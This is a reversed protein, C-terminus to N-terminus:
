KLVIERTYLLHDAYGTSIQFAGPESVLKNENNWFRLMPETVTFSIVKREGPGFDVKQFDILQQIPRANSAVLDRLYLMVTEKGSVDSDNRVTIDVRISGDATMEGASLTM